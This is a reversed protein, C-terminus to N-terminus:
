LEDEETEEDNNNQSLNKENNKLFTENFNPLHKINNYAIQMNTNEIEEEEKSNLNKRYYKINNQLNKIYRKCSKIVNEKKTTDKLNIILSNM